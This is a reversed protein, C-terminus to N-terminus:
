RQRNRTQLFQGGPDVMYLHDAGDICIGHPQDFEGEGWSDVVAGDRDLVVVPVSVRNFVYVNDESDVAVSTAYGGFSVGQPLAGWHPVPEYTVTEARAGVQDGNVSM